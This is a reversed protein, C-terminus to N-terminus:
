DAKQSWAPPAQSSPFPFHVKLTGPLCGLKLYCKKKRIWHKFTRMLTVQLDCFQWRQSAVSLFDSICSLTNLPCKFLIQQSYALSTKTPHHPDM